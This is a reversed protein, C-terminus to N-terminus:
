KRSEPRPRLRFSLSTPAPKRNAAANQTLYLATVNRGKNNSASYWFDSSAPSPESLALIAVSEISQVEVANLNAAPNPKTLTKTTEPQKNLPEHLANTSCCNWTRGRYAAVAEAPM